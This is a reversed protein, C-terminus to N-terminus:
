TLDLCMLFELILYNRKRSKKILSEIIRKTIGYNKERKDIKYIARSSPYIYIIKSDSILSCIKEDIPNTDQYSSNKIKPDYSFNILHSFKEFFNIKKKIEFRSIFTIKNKLKSFKYFNKALFSNKGIVLFKIKKKNKLM